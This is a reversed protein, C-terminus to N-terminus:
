HRTVVREGDVLVPSGDTHGSGPQLSLDPSLLPGGLSAILDVNTGAPSACVGGLWFLCWRYLRLCLVHCWSVGLLSRLCFKRQCLDYWHKRLDTEWPLLFLCVFLFGLYSRILSVLKQVAFSVM